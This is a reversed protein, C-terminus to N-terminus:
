DYTLGGEKPVMDPAADEEIYGKGKGYEIIAERNITKYNEPMNGKVHESLKQRVEPSKFKSFALHLNCERVEPLTSIDSFDVDEGKKGPVQKPPM